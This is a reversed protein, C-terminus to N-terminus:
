LKLDMLIANELPNKYYNNRIGVKEFGFASYLNIAIINSERVELTLTKVSQSKAKKILENVIKKGIGQGRYNKKVAINTIQGEDVVKWFGAYGIIENDMHAIVYTANENKSENMFSECSWPTSFCERDIKSLEDSYEKILDTFTLM